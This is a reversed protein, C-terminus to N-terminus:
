IEIKTIKSKNEEPSTKIDYAAFYFFLFNLFARISNRNNLVLNRSEKFIDVIKRWKKESNNM